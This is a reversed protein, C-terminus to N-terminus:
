TNPLRVYVDVPPAYAGATAAHRCCRLWSDAKSLCRGQRKPFTNYSSVMVVITLIEVLLQTLATVPRPCLVVPHRCFWRYGGIAALRTRARITAIVGVAVVAVLLWDSVALNEQQAPLTDTHHIRGALVVATRVPRGSPTRPQALDLSVTYRIRHGPSKGVGSRFSLAHCFVEGAVM